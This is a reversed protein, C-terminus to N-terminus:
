KKAKLNIGRKVLAERLLIEVMKSFSRDENEPKRLDEISENIKQDVTASINTKSKSM